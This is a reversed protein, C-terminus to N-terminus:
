RGISCLLRYVQTRQSLGYISGADVRLAGTVFFRNLLGFTQQVFAGRITRESRDEGSPGVTGSTTTAVGPALGITQIGTAFSQLYQLTGGLTTTTTLNETLDRKYSATLDNNVLITTLDARRALGTNFTPATSGSPIFGTGVQTSADYGLVYDV